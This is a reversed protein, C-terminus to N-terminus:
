PLFVTWAYGADRGLWDHEPAGVGLEDAGDGDLDGLNGVGAGFRDFPFLVPGFGGHEASIQRPNRVRGDARLGLLWLAGVDQGGDDDGGAGVVLEAFGDGNRDGLVALSQGFADGSWLSVSFGNRGAGISRRALVDGNADLFLIWVLGTDVFWPLDGGPAGVALDAIGNGDLDGVNALATGFADGPALAGALSVGDIRRAMRVTADSELFLLYVAGADVGGVDVGPAGVALDFNGDGDLDGLPALSAGFEDGPAFGFSAFVPSECDAVVPTDVTGDLNAHYIWVGGCPQTSADWKLPAGVAIETVGDGDLDGVRALARGFASSLQIGTGSLFHRVFSVPNGLADLSLTMFDTVRPMGVVVETTGDGDLDGLGALAHGYKGFAQSLLGGFRTESTAVGGAGITVLWFEGVEVPVSLDAADPMGIFLDDRGDGDLDGLAALGQGFNRGVGSLTGGFGGQGEGLPQAGTVSGDAALFLHLVYGLTSGLVGTTLDDRGDGDLDGLTTLGLGIDETSALPFTLGGVNAGIEQFARVNGTGDFFLVWISGNSANRPSSVALEDIGDGDLDGLAALGSGFQAGASLNGGFGGSVTSFKRHSLVTGDDALSLAWVAGQDNGGDDDGPAGVFLERRGDGDLDHGLTLALGFRDDDDLAGTFNGAGAGAILVNERVEGKRDLFLVWVAGNTTGARQDFPAGVAVEVIGDGDLDELACLAFGFGSTGAIAGTFGGLQSGIRHRYRGSAAEDEYFLLAGANGAIGGTGVLFEFAGDGDLDGVNAASTGLSWFASGFGSTPVLDKVSAVVAGSGSEDPASSRSTTSQFSFSSLAVPLLALM